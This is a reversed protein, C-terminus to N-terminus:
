EMVWIIIINDSDIGELENGWAVATCNKSRKRRGSRKELLAYIATPSTDKNKAKYSFALFAKTTIFNNIKKPTNTIAAVAPIM